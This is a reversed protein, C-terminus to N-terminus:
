VSREELMGTSRLYLFVILGLVISYAYVMILLKHNKGKDSKSLLM